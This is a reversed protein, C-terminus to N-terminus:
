FVVYDFFNVVSSFGMDYPNVNETLTPLDDFAPSLLRGLPGIQAMTLDSNFGKAFRNNLPKSCLLSSNLESHGFHPRRKTQNKAQCYSGLDLIPQLSRKATPEGTSALHEEQRATRRQQAVNRRLM